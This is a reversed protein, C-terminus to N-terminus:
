NREPGVSRFGGGMGGSVAAGGIPEERLGGSNFYPQPLDRAYEIRFQYTLYLTKDGATGPPLDIDWRLMNDMRATRNYIADSSLEVSTKVLNVAVAEGQPKPLRDWLQVKIPNRRYNRLGIRFEYEFVQNGGQVTRTKRVLRRSVQLQPDVGFGAIFPEGAAVLPLRMRGVFEGGVYVTAEGPLLVLDSKNTLKAQRYVRQTLVPIAQAFYEAALEIRGVELLQPDKRSPIDLRGAVTFTVSPSDKEPDAPDDTRAETVRLEEAQEDAAAQNLLARAARAKEIAGGIGM